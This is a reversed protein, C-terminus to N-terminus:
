ATVKGVIHNYCENVLTSNAKIEERVAAFGRGRMDKIGKLAKDFDSLNYYVVIRAFDRKIDSGSVMRVGFESAPVQKAEMTKM